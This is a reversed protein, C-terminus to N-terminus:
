KPINKQKAEPVVNQDSEKDDIDEMLRDDKIKEILYNIKQITTNQANINRQQDKM